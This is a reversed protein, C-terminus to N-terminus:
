LRFGPTDRPTDLIYRSDYLVPDSDLHLPVAIQTSDLLGAIKQKNLWGLMAQHTSFPLVLHCKEDTM